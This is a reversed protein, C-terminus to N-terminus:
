EVIKYRLFAGVGGIGEFKKGSEHLVNIITFKSNTKRALDLLREGEKSRVLTDVILLHVVAGRNLADAVEKKGYTVLGEKRIEEFLKEVLQTEFSVRNEKTVKDAVGLKIAEHVGNLGASGTSLVTYPTFLEPEKDKGYKVFHERTFGTGVVILPVEPKKYTRMVSIIDGYYESETSVGEYMKGSRHSDIDAVWQVGSQRLVAITATDEDLSVFLLFPQTRQRVAEELRDLEHQEWWEKVITLKEMEEATINLTHYLGLAQPGEEITGQIRLRDSFEHFGKKEVRIGLMMRVKEIKKSRIKDDSQEGTRFTVARVLDGEQIINYLHWLDDLNEPIVKIEGKRLDKFVIQM